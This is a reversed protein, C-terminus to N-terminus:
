GARNLGADRAIQNPCKDGSLLFPTWLSHPLVAKHVAEFGYCMRCVQRESGGM